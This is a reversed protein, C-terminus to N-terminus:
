IHLQRRRRSSKQKSSVIITDDGREVVIFEIYSGMITVDHKITFCGKQKIFDHCSDTKKKKFRGDRNEEGCTPGGIVAAAAAALDNNLEPTAQVGAVLHM